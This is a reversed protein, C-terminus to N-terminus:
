PDKNWGSHVCRWPALSPPPALKLSTLLPPPPRNQPLPNFFFSPSLSLSVSLSYTLHVTIFLDYFCVLYNLLTLSNRLSILIPPFKSLGCDSPHPKHTPRLYLFLPLLLLLPPTFFLPSGSVVTLSEQPQGRQPKWHAAIVRCVSLCVCVHAFVCGRLPYPFTYFPLITHFCHWSHPVLTFCPPLLFTSNSIQASQNAGTQRCTQTHTSGRQNDHAGCFFFFFSFLYFIAGIRLMVAQSWVCFYVSGIMWEYDPHNM